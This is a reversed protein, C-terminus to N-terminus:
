LLRTGDKYRYGRVLFILRYDSCKYYKLPDLLVVKVCTLPPNKSTISPVLAQKAWFKFSKGVGMTLTLYALPICSKGPLLAWLRFFM